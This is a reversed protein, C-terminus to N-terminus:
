LVDSIREIIYMTTPSENLEKIYEQFKSEEQLAVVRINDIKKQLDGLLQDKMEEMVDGLSNSDCSANDGDSESESDPFPCGRTVKDYSVFEWVLDNVIAGLRIAVLRLVINYNAGQTDNLPQGNKLHCKLVKGHEQVISISHFEDAYEEIQEDAKVLTQLHQELLLYNTVSTSSLKFRVVTEKRQPILVVNEFMINIHGTLKCIFSTSNRKISKINIKGFHDVISGLIIHDTM